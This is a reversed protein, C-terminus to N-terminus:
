SDKSAFVDCFRYGLPEKVLLGGECGLKLARNLQSKEVNLHKTLFDIESDKVLGCNILPSRIKVWILLGLTDLGHNSVFQNELNSQEESGLLWIADM